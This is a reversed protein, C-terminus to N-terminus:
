INISFDNILRSYAFWQQSSITHWGTIVRTCIFCAVAAAHNHLWSWLRERYFLGKFFPLQLYVPRFTPVVPFGASWHFLCSPAENLENGKKHEKTEHTNRHAHTVCPTSQDRASEQRHCKLCFNQGMARKLWCRPMWLCVSSIIDVLSAPSCDGLIM